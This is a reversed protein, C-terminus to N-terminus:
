ISTGHGNIMRKDSANVRGSHSPQNAAVTAPTPSHAPALQPTTTLAPKELVLEDEFSLM